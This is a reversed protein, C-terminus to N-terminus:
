MIAFETNKRDTVLMAGPNLTTKMSFVALPLVRKDGVAVAVSLAFKVLAQNLPPVGAPNIM